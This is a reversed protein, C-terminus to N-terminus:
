AFLRCLPSAPFWSSTLFFLFSYGLCLSLLNSGQEQDEGTPGGFLLQRWRETEAPQVVVVLLGSSSSSSSSSIDRYETNETHTCLHTRTVYQILTYLTGRERETSYKYGMTGIFLCQVTKYITTTTTLPGNTLRPRPPMQPYSSTRFILFHSSGLCPFCLLPHTQKTKTQPKTKNQKTKKNPQAGISARCVM